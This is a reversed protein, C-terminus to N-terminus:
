LLEIHNTFHLDYQIEHNVFMLLILLGM